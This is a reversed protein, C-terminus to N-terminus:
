NTKVKEKSLGFKAGLVTLINNVKDFNKGISAVLVINSNILFNGAFTFRHYSGDYSLDHREVFEASFDLRTATYSLSLGYDFYASDKANPAGPGILTSYRALAVFTLPFRHPNWMMNLWAGWKKAGLDKYTNTPSAGLYAGALEIDFTPKAMINRLSDNLKEIAALNQALGTRGVALLDLIHQKISDVEKLKAQSFIRVPQVRVGVSLSTSTDTRTTAASIGITSLLPFKQKAYDEFSFAYRPKFYYPNFEIASGGLLNLLSLSLMKPNSPREITTPSSGSLILGPSTPITLDNISISDTQGFASCAGIVLLLVSCIRKATM